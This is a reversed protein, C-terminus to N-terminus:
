HILGSAVLARTYQTHTLSLSLCLSLSHTLSLFPSLTCMQGNKPPPPVSKSNEIFM